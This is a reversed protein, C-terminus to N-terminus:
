PMMDEYGIPENRPPPHVYYHLGGGIVFVILWVVTLKLVIILEGLVLGYLMLITLVTLYLECSRLLCRMIVRMM